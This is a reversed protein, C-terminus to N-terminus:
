KGARQGNRAENAYGSRMSNTIRIPVALMIKTVVLMATPARMRVAWSGLRTMRASIVTVPLWVVAMVVMVVVGPMAILAPGLHDIHAFVNGVIIAAAVGFRCNSSGAVGDVVHAPFNLQAAVLQSLVARFQFVIAGFQAPINAIIRAFCLDPAVALLNARIQLLDFAGAM